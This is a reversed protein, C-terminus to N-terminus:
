WNSVSYEFSVNQPTGERAKEVGRSLTRMDSARTGTGLVRRLAEQVPPVERVAAEGGPQEQDTNDGARRSSSKTRQHEFVGFNSLM